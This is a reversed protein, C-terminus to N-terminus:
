FPDNKDETSVGHDIVKLGYQRAKRACHGTGSAWKLAFAWCVTENGQKDLEAVIKVMFENRAFPHSFHKAPWPEYYIGLEQCIEQTLLDIGPAAGHIVLINTRGHEIWAEELLSRILNEAKIRDRISRTGTVLIILMM